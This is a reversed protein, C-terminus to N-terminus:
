ARHHARLRAALQRLEVTAETPVARLLLLGALFLASAAIVLPIQPLGPIFALLAAAGGAVLTRILVGLRPRLTPHRLALLAGTGILAALDAVFTGIAAGRAGYAPALAAVAGCNIALTLSTIALIARHERLSLLAYTWAASAFMAFVTVAQIRLVDISSNFEQGAVVDIVLPAGLALMLAIWAGLIVNAEFMLQVAYGLRAHNERAARAFIPLATVVLLQPVVVLVEVVRFPAAFYGTETPSAILSLLVIALRFYLAAAATALAFPLIERVLPAWVARSFRPALTLGGRVVWFTLGLSVLAAPLPVFFFPGLSAGLAVLLVIGVVLVVQRLLEALTIWGFRLQAMLVIGITTQLNQFVLAAGVLAAGLVLVRDYGAVFVFLTAGAAGVVSLASRLGLIAGIVEEREIAQKVALDRLGIATLGLDSLAQVTAILAFVTVYRGGDAVGLHRFLLAASTVTFVVGVAYGGVRLVGGRIAAPGAAASSSLESPDDSTSAPAEGADFRVM